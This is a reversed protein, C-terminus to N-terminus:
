DAVTAGCSAHMAVVVAVNNGLIETFMQARPHTKVADREGLAASFLAKHPQESLL